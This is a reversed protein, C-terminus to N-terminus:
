WTRARSRAQTRDRPRPPVISVIVDAAAVVADLDPLVELGAREALEATRVSRGALTTVMSCGGAVWLRGFASGMAGPSVVGVVTM